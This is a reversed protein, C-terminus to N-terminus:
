WTPNAAVLPRGAVATSVEIWTSPHQEARGKVDTPLVEYSFSGMGRIKQSASDYVVAKLGQTGVDVGLFLSMLGHFTQLLWTSNARLDLPFRSLTSWAVCVVVLM